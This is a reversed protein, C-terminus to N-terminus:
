AAAREVVWAKVLAHAEHTPLNPLQDTLVGRYEVTLVGAKAANFFAPMRSIGRAICGQCGMAFRGSLPHARANACADCTM